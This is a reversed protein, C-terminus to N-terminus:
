FNGYKNPNSAMKNAIYRRVADLDPDRPAIEEARALFVKADDLQDNDFLYRGTRVILPIFFPYAQLGQNLYQFALEQEGANWLNQALLDLVYPNTPLKENTDLLVELAADTDDWLTYSRALMLHADVLNPANESANELFEVDEATTSNGADVMASIEGMRQEFMPDDAILILREIEALKEVEDTLKKAQELYQLAEIGEDHVLHLAAINIFTQLQKDTEIREALAQIGPSIDDVDYLNEIVDRLYNGDNDRSVMEEFRQWFTDLEELLALQMLQTYRARLDNNDLDIATDLAKVAEWLLADENDALDDDILIFDDPYEGYQDAALMANGYTRYLVANTYGGIIAKQLIKAADGVRGTAAIISGLQLWAHTHQPFKDVTQQLLNYAEQTYGLEFLKPAIIAAPVDYSPFADVTDAVQHVLLDGVISYGPKLAHATAQSVLWAAFSHDVKQAQEIFYAYDDLIVDDAWEVGWLISLMQVDWQLAVQLLQRMDDNIEIVFDPVPESDDLRIAGISDLIFDSITPIENFLEALDSVTVSIEQTDSDEGVLLDNELHTTLQWKDEVQSLDGWIAINEDLQDVSWDDVTFQSKDISWKFAEPEGELQAFLRYVVIDQWRELYHALAVWLGMAVIPEEDSICSWLGIRYPAINSIASPLESVSGFIASANNQRQQKENLRMLQHAFTTLDTM